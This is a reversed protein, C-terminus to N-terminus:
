LYVAKVTINTSEIKALEIAFPTLPVSLHMVDALEAPLITAFSFSIGHRIEDDQACVAMPHYM